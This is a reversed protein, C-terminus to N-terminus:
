KGGSDEYAQATEIDPKLNIHPSPEWFQKREYGNRKSFIEAEIYAHTFAYNM